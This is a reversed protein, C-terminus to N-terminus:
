WDVQLNLPGTGPSIKFFFKQFRNREVITISYDGPKVNQIAFKGNNDTLAVYRGPGELQVRVSSKPAGLNGKVQGSVAVQGYAVQGLLLVLVMTILMVRVYPREM